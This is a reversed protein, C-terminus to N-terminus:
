GSICRCNCRCGTQVNKGGATHLRRVLLWQELRVYRRGSGPVKIEIMREQLTPRRQAPVLSHCSSHGLKRRKEPEGEPDRPQSPAQRMGVHLPRKADGDRRAQQNPEPRSNRARHGQGHGYAMAGGARKERLKNEPPNMRSPICNCDEPWCDEHQGGHSAMDQETPSKWRVGRWSPPRQYGDVKHSDHQDCAREALLKAPAPQGKGDQPVPKAQQGRGDHDADDPSNPVQGQEEQRARQLRFQWPAPEPELGHGQAQDQREDILLGPM